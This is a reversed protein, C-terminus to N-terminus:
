ILAFSSGLCSSFFTTVSFLATYCFLHINFYFELFYSSAIFLAWLAHSMKDLSVASVFNACCSWEQPLILKPSSFHKSQWYVSLDSSRQAVSVDRALGAFTLVSRTWCNVLHRIVFTVVSLSVFTSVFSEVLLTM